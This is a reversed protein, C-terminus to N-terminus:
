ASKRTLVIPPPTFFTISQQGVYGPLLPTWTTRCTKETFKIEVEVVGDRNTTYDRSTRRRVRDRRRTRGRRGPHAAASAQWYDFVAGRNSGHARALRSVDGDSSFRGPKELPEVAQTRHSDSGLHWGIRSEHSDESARSNDLLAYWTGSTLGEARPRLTKEKPEVNGGLRRVVSRLLPLLVAAGDPSNRTLVYAAGARLRAGPLGPRTVNPESRTAPPTSVTAEGVTCPM